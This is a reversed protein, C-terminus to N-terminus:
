CGPVGMGVGVGAGVDPRILADQAQRVQWPHRVGHLVRVVSETQVVAQVTSRESVIHVSSDGDFNKISVVIRANSNQKFRCHARQGEGQMPSVCKTRRSAVACACMPRIIVNLLSSLTCTM